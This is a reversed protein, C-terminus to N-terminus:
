FRLSVLISNPVRWHDWWLAYPVVVFPFLFLFFLFLVKSMTAITMMMIMTMKMAMETKWQYNTETQVRESQVKWESIQLEIEEDTAVQNGNWQNMLIFLFFLRIETMLWSDKLSPACALLSSYIPWDTKSTM